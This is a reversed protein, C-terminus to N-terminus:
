SKASAVLRAPIKAGHDRALAGAFHDEPRQWPMNLSQKAIDYEGPIYLFSPLVALANIEGPGTLQPIAFIEPRRRRDEAALDVFAVSSNTTGLDVGVIYRQDNLEVPM